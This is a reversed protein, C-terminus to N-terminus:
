GGAAGDHFHDDEGLPATEVTLGVRDAARKWMRDLHFFLIQNLILAPNHESPQVIGFPHFSEGALEFDLLLYYSCIFHFIGEDFPEHVDVSEQDASTVSPDPATEARLGDQEQFGDTALRSLRAHNGDSKEKM